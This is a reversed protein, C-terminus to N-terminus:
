RSQRMEADWQCLARGRMLLRVCYGVKYPPSLLAAFAQSEFLGEASYPANRINRAAGDAAQM